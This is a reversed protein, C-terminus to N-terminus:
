ATTRTQRIVDRARWRSPSRTRPGPALPNRECGSSARRRQTGGLNWVRGRCRGARPTWDRDGIAVGATKLARREHLPPHGNDLGDREHVTLKSAFRGCSGVLLASHCGNYRGSAYATDCRSRSTPSMATGATRGAATALGSVVLSIGNHRSPRHREPQRHGDVQLTRDGTV